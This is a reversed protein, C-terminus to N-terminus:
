CGTEPPVMDKRFDGCSVGANSAAARWFAWCEVPGRLAAALLLDSASGEVGGLGLGDVDVHRLGGIGTHAQSHQKGEQDDNALLRLLAGELKPLGGLDFGEVVVVHAPALRPKEGQQAEEILGDPGFRLPL